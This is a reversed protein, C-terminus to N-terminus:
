SALWLGVAFSALFGIAMLAVTSASSVRRREVGDAISYSFARM